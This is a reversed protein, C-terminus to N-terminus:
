PANPALIIKFSYLIYDDKAVNLVVRHMKWNVVNLMMIEFSVNAIPIM